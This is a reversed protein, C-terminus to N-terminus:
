KNESDFFESLESELSSEQPADQQFDDFLSFQHLEEEKNLKNVSIIEDLEFMPPLTEEKKIAEESSDLKAKKEENRNINKGYMPSFVTGLISEEEADKNTDGKENMANTSAERVGFIPSIVANFEYNPKRTDKIEVRRERRSPTIEKKVEELDIFRSPKQAVEYFEMKNDEKVEPNENKKAELSIDAMPKRTIPEEPVKEEIEEVVEEQEEVDEFFFDVFKKFM